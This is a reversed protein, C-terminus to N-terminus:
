KPVLELSMVEADETPDSYYSRRRDQGVFKRARYFAIANENSARVELWITKVGQPHCIEIFESLLQSGSGRNQHLPVIGINYIEAEPPDAQDIVRGAIFGIPQGHADRAVLIVSDLRELESAYGDSTWQSLGCRTQVDILAPVDNTSAPSILIKVM